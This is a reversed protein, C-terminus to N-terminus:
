ADKEAARETRRKHIAGWLFSALLTLLVGTLAGSCDILVDTVQGARGGVFLQITEDISPILVLALATVLVPVASPSRHPRFAQMAVIGLVAYETFHATKRVLVHTVWEYPLGVAALAGHIHHLVGLSLSGSEEGPVLSNGWIFCVALVFVAFWPWCVRWPRPRDAPTPQQAPASSTM